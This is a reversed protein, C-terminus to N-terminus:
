STAALAPCRRLRRLHATLVIAATAALIRARASGPDGPTINKTCVAIAALGGTFYCTAPNVIGLTKCEALRIFVSPPRSGPGTLRTVAASAIGSLTEALQPTIDGPPFYLVARGDRYHLAAAAPLGDLGEAWVNLWEPVAYRCSRRAARLFQTDAGTVPRPLIIWERPALDDLYACPPSPPFGAGPSGPTDQWAAGAPRTVTAPPRAPLRQPPTM